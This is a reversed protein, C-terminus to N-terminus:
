EKPTWNILFEKLSDKFIEYTEYFSSLHKMHVSGEFEALDLYDFIDMKLKAIEKQSESIASKYGAEFAHRDAERDVKDSSDSIGGDPWWEEFAERIKEDM